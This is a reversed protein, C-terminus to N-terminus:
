SGAKRNKWDFIVYTVLVAMAFSVIGEIWLPVGDRWYGHVIPVLLWPLGAFVAVVLPRKLFPLGKREDGGDSIPKNKPM